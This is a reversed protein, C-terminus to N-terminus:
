PIEEVSVITSTHLEPYGPVGFEFYMGRGIWDMKLMSVGWSSGHVNCPVPTPCFRPHGEITWGDGIKLLTYLTNRTQIRYGKGKLDSPRAGGEVESRLINANSLNPHGAPKEENM